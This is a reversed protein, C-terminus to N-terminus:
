GWTREHENNSPYLLTSVKYVHLQHAFIQLPKELTMGPTLPPVLGLGWFQKWKDGPPSHTGSLSLDQCQM